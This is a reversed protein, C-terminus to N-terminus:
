GVVEGGLFKELKWGKPLPHYRLFELAEKKTKFQKRIYDKPDVIIWGGAKFRMNREKKSKVKDVKTM